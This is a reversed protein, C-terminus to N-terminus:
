EKRSWRSRSFDGSQVHARPPQWPFRPSSGRLVPVGLEPEWLPWVGWALLLTPCPPPVGCLHCRLLAGLVTSRQPSPTPPGLHPALGMYEECREGLIAELKQEQCQAQLALLLVGVGQAGM